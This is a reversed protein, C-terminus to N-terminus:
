RFKYFLLTDRRAGVTEFYSGVFWTYPKYRGLRVQNAKKTANDRTLLCTSFLPLNSKDDSQRAGSAVHAGLDYTAETIYIYINPTGTGSEQWEEIIM